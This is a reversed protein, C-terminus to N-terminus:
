RRKAASIRQLNAQIGAMEPSVSGHLDFSGGDVFAPTPAATRLNGEDIETHGKSHAILHFRTSPGSESVICIVLKTGAVASLVAGEYGGTTSLFVSIADAADRSDDGDTVDFVYIDADTKAETLYLELWLIATEDFTVNYYRVGDKHLRGTFVSPHAQAVGAALIVAALLTGVIVKSKM